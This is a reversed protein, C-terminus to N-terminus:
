CYRISLLCEPWRARSSPGRAVIPVTLLVVDEGSIEDRFVNSFSPMLTTLVKDFESPVPFRMGRRQFSFPDSGVAMGQDNYIVVGANFVFLQNQEREFARKLRAAELSQIDADNAITQLLLSYRSLGEALRAASVNALEADRQLVVDRAALEYAFLAIIAVVVLVLATPILAWLLVKTRVSKFLFM